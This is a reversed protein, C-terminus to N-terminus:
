LATNDVFTPQAWPQSRRSPEHEGSASFGRVADSPGCGYSHSRRGGECGEDMTCLEEEHALLGVGFLVCVVGPWFWAHAGAGLGDFERFFVLSGIVIQGMMSMAMYAPIVIVTDGYKMGLNFFHIQCAALVCFTAVCGLFLWSRLDDTKNIVSAVILGATTKSLISAYWACTASIMTFQFASLCPTRHWRSRARMAMWTLFSASTLLSFLTWRSMLTSVVIHVTEQHYEKPGFRIVWICGTVLLCSAGLCNRSVPEGLYLRAIALAVVINWGDMVAAICQPALGLGLWSVVNGAIWIFGGVLWRGQMWYPSPADTGASGSAQCRVANPSHMVHSQKQVLLGITTLTAGLFAALVGVIWFWEFKVLDARRDGILFVSSGEASSSSQAQLQEVKGQWFLKQAFLLERAVNWLHSVDGDSSGWASVHIM